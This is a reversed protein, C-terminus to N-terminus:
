GRVDDAIMDAPKAGIMICVANCNSSPMTPMVSADAV